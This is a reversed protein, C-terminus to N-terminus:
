STVSLRQIRMGNRPRQRRAEIPDVQEPVNVERSRSHIPLLISLTLVPSLLIVPDETDLSIENLRIENNHRFGRRHDAHQERTLRPPTVHRRPM